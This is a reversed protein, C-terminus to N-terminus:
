LFHIMKSKFYKVFCKLSVNVPDQENRPCNAMSMSQGHVFNKKAIEHFNDVICPCQGYYMSMPWLVHVNAMTCPCQGCYM